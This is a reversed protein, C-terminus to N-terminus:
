WSSILRSVCLDAALEDNRASKGEAYRYEIAINQAEIYGLERLALRIAEARTSESARNIGSLYGIRFIKKPQQAEVVAGGFSSALAIAFIAV